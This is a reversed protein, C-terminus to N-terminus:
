KKDYNAVIKGPNSKSKLAALSTPIQEFTIEEGVKKLEDGSRCFLIYCYFFFSSVFSFLSFPSYLFLFFFLVMASLIKKELLEGVARGFKAIKNAGKEGETHNLGLVINIYSLM